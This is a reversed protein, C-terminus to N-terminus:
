EGNKDKEEKGSQTPLPEPLPVVPFSVEYAKHWGQALTWLGNPSLYPSGDQEDEDEPIGSVLLTAFGGPYVTLVGSYDFGSEELKSPM